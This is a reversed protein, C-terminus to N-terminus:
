GRQKAIAMAREPGQQVATDFFLAVARETRVRLFASVALAGQFHVGAYALEDQVRQFAPTRGAARFRSVWPEAWLVMGGVAATSGASTTALLAPADPGFASGFLAHDAQDMAALLRGLDGTSQAWQLIGFSLGAGDRNLNLSDYGGENRSVRAIVKSVGPEVVVVGVDAGGASSAVVDAPLV